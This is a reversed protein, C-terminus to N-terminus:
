SEPLGADNTWCDDRVPMLLRENVSVAHFGVREAAQAVTVIADPGAYPGVHPLNVGIRLTDM